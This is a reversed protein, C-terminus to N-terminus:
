LRTSSIVGLDQQIFYINALCVGIFLKYSSNILLIYMSLLKEFNVTLTTILSFTLITFNLM